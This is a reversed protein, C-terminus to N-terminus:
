TNVGSALYGGDVAIVEGTVFAAAESALYIAPGVIEKPNGFRHMPTRMLIEEGRPTGVVLPKTTDSPFVGPAIANVIVGTQALEVALSKTLSAVASKSAAYPAVRYFSRFATLSAINIIRGYGAKAMTRGFIQCARMTGTLNTEIIKSWDAEEFELTPVKKTLGAANVLIDVKGFAEIVADHLRQISPRSLVDSAVRLTRRGLAEIEAAVRDVHQQRRSSVVVDAGAGAFGLAIERGLGTTGGTIVAVRGNLNFLEVGKLEEETRPARL